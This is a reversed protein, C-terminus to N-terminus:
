HCSDSLKRVKKFYLLSDSASKEGDTQHLQINTQVDSRFSLSVVVSALVQCVSLGKETNM